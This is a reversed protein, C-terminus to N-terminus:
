ETEGRMKECAHRAADIEAKKKSTGSGAGLLRGSLYGEVWFTKSHELGEERRVRYEPLQGSRAQCLEQLETKYDAHARIRLVQEMTEGYLDQILGRAVNFGGDLFVAGFVAELSDALISAKARGGTGAEGKGLLIHEGLGIAGALRSLIKGSVLFSKMKAMESEPLPPVIGYLLEGIVLGLVTDGLFELRENCEIGPAPNEHRFSSHTLAEQLLQPDKFSYGLHREIERTNRSSSVPM